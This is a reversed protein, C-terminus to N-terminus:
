QILGFKFGFMNYQKKTTPMDPKVVHMPEIMEGPGEVVKSQKDVKSSKVVESNTRFEDQLEETVHIEIESEPPTIEPEAPKIPNKKILNCPISPTSRKRKPAILSLPTHLKQKGLPM